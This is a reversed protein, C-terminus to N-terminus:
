LSVCDKYICNLTCLLFLVHGDDNAFRNLYDHHVCMGALDTTVIMSNTGSTRGATNRVFVFVRLTSDEQVTQNVINATKNCIELADRALETYGSIDLLQFIACYEFIFFNGPTVTVMVDVQRNKNIVTLTPPPPALFCM